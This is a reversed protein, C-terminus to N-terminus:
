SFILAMLAGGLIYCLGSALVSLPIFFEGGTDHLVLTSLQFSAGALWFCLVVIFMLPRM